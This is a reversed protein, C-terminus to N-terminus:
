SQSFVSRQVKGAARGHGSKGTDEAGASTRGTGASQRNGSRGDAAKKRVESVMMRAIKPSMPAGGRHLSEIAQVLAAPRTGKLLYGAAGAKFASLVRKRDGFRTYVLVALGPMRNKAQEIFEADTMDPLDLGSLVMEASSRKLGRLADRGKSFAGVVTIMEEATLISRLRELVAPSSHVIALRM